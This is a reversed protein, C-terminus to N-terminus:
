RPSAGVATGRCGGSGHGGDELEVENSVGDGGLAARLIGVIAQPGSVGSPTFRKRSETFPKLSSPTSISEPGSWGAPARARSPWAAPRRGELGLRRDFLELRQGRAATVGGDDVRDLRAGLPVATERQDAVLRVQAFQGGPQQARPAADLELFARDAGISTSLAVGPPGPVSRQNRGGRARRPRLSLHRRKRAVTMMLGMAPDRGRRARM